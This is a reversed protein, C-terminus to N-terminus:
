DYHVQAHLSGVDFAPVQLWRPIWPDNNGKMLLPMAVATVLYRPVSESFWNELCIAGVILEGALVYQASKRAPSTTVRSAGVSPLAQRTLSWDRHLSGLSKMFGPVIKPSMTLLHDRSQLKVLLMSCLLSSPRPCAKMEMRRTISILGALRDFETSCRRACFSSSLM